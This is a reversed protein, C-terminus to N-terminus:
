KASREMEEVARRFEAFLYGGAGAEAFAEVLARYYWLTQERTASFHEWVGDGIEQQDAVISRANHLKDALAVRLAAPRRRVRDIFTQKRTMWEPKEGGSWGPPTDTCERVMRLVRRGFRREIEEPSTRAPQDELADHLLAAVAEKEDGGHELVLAAVALLHALYPTDSGKRTQGAHVRSAYLLAEEFRTRPQTTDAM